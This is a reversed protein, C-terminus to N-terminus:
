GHKFRDVTDARLTPPFQKAVEAAQLADAPGPDVVECLYGTHAANEGFLNIVPKM